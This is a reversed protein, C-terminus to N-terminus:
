LNEPYVGYTETGGPIPDNLKTIMKDIYTVIKGKEYNFFEIDFLNVLNNPYGLYVIPVDKGLQPVYLVTNPDNSQYPELGVKTGDSNYKYCHACDIIFFPNNLNRFTFNETHINGELDQEGRFHQDYHEFIVSKTLKTKIKETLNNNKWAELVLPDALGTTYVTFVQDELATTIERKVTESEPFKDLVNNEILFKLYYAATNETIPFITNPHTPVEIGHDKFFNPDRTLPKYAM